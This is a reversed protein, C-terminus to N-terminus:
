VLSYLVPLEARHETIVELPPTPLLDLFSPIYTCM